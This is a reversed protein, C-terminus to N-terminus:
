FDPGLNGTILANQISYLLFAVMNQVEM